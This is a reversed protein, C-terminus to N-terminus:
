RGGRSSKAFGLKSEHASAGSPQWDDGKPGPRPKGPAKGSPRPRANGNGASSPAGSKAL